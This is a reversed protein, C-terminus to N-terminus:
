LAQEQEVQEDGNTDEYCALNGQEDYEQWCEFVIAYQSGVASM